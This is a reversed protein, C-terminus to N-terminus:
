RQIHRHYRSRHQPPDTPRLILRPLRARSLASSSARSAAGLEGVVADYLERSARRSVDRSQARAHAQRSAFERWGRRFTCASFLSLARMNAATASRMSSRSASSAWPWDVMLPKCVTLELCNSTRELAVGLELCRLDLKAGGRRRRTRRLRRRRRRRRRRRGARPSEFDRSYSVTRMERRRRRRRRDSGRARPRLVRRTIVNFNLRGMGHLGGNM